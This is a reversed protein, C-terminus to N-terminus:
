RRPTQEQWCFLLNGEAQSLAPERAISGRKPIVIKFLYKFQMVVAAM